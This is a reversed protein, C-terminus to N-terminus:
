THKVDTTMNNNNDYKEIYIKHWSLGSENSNTPLSRTTVCLVLHVYPHSGRIGKEDQWKHISRCTGRDDEFANTKINYMLKLLIKYMVRKYKKIERKLLITITTMVVSM